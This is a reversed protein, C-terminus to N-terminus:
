VVAAFEMSLRLMTGADVLLQRSVETYKIFRIQFTNEVLLKAYRTQYLREIRFTEPLDSNM